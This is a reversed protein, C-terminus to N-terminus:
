LLADLIQCGRREYVALDPIIDVFPPGARDAGRDPRDLVRLNGARYLDAVERKKGRVPWATGSVTDCHRFGLKRQQLGSNAVSFRRETDSVEGDLWLNFDTPPPDPQRDQLALGM